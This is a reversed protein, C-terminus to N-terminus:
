TFTNNAPSYVGQTWFITAAHVYVLIENVYFRSLRLIRQYDLSDPSYYWHFTSCSNDTKTEPLRSLPDRAINFVQAVSGSEVTMDDKVSVIQTGASLREEVIVYM